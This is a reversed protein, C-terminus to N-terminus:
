RRSGGVIPSGLAMTASLPRASVAIFASKIAIDAFRNPDDTRVQTNVTIKAGRADIPPLGQRLRELNKADLAKQQNAKAIALFNGPESIKNVAEVTRKIAAVQDNYLAVDEPTPAVGLWALGSPPLLLRQAAESAQVDGRLAELISEIKRQSELTKRQYEVAHELGRIEVGDSMKVKGNMLEDRLQDNHGPIMDQVMRWLDLGALGHPLTSPARQGVVRGQDDVQFGLDRALRQRDLIFNDIAQLNNNNEQWKGDLDFASSTADRGFLEELLKQRDRRASYRPDKDVGRRHDWFDRHLDDVSILREPLNATAKGYEDIYNQSHSFADSIADIVSVVGAGIGVLGAFGHGVALVADTLDGLPQMADKAGKKIGASWDGWVGKSKKAEAAAKKAQQEAERDAKQVAGFAAEMLEMEEIVPEFRLMAREIGFSTDSVHQIRAAWDADLATDIVSRSPMPSALDREIQAIMQAERELASRRSRAAAGGGDGDGGGRGGGGGGFDIHGVANAAEKLRAEFEKLGQYASDFNLGVDFRLSRTTANTM